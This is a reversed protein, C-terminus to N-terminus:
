SRPSFEYRLFCPSSLADSPDPTSYNGSIRVEILSEPSHSIFLSRDNALPGSDFYFTGIRPNPSSKETMTLRDAVELPFRSEPRPQRLATKDVENEPFIM